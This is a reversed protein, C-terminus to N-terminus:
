PFHPDADAWQMRGDARARWGIPAREVVERRVRRVKKKHDSARRESKRRMRGAREQQQRALRGRGIPGGTGDQRGTRCMEGGMGGKEGLESDVHMGM